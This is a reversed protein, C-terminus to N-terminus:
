GRGPRSALGVAAQSRDTTMADTSRLLHVDRRPFPIVIGRDRFAELITRNIEGTALAFDTTAVWPRVGINVSSDGLQDVRIVPEVDQLVRANSKLVQRIIALAQNLDTDYAVGVVVNIQRKWGFNHLIEGVIKRNPIVV